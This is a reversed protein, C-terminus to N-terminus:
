RKVGLRQLGQLNRMLGPTRQPDTTLHQAFVQHCKGPGLCERRQGFFRHKALNFLKGLAKLHCVISGGDRLLQQVQDPLIGDAALLHM